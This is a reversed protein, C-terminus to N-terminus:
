FYYVGFMELRVRPDGEDEFVVTEDGGGGATAGKVLSGFANLVKENFSIKPPKNSGTNWMFDKDSFVHVAGDISGGDKWNFSNQATNLADVYILGRFLGGSGMQELKANGPGAYVLTSSNDTGHYFRGGPNLTAGDEVIFIVKKDFKGDHPENFNITPDGRKVKLVLHDKYLKGEEAAKDYSEHLKSVSFISGNTAAGYASQILNGDINSIDLQPDRREEIGKMGLKGLITEGSLEPLKTRSLFGSVLSLDAHQGNLHRICSWQNPICHEPGAAQGQPPPNYYSLNDTYYFSNTTPSAISKLHLNTEIGHQTRFDGGIYVNGTTHISGAGGTALNGAFGVDDEFVHCGSNPLNQFTANGGIFTKGYFKNSVHMFEAHEHFYADGHFIGPSNQFKAFGEFTASGFVEMANDGNRLGGKMYIANKGGYAGGGEFKINGMKYLAHAKKLNKGGASRGAAVEFRAFRNERQFEILRSSFFQYEALKEKAKGDSGGFIYPKHNKDNLADTLTKLAADANNPNRFYTETAIMGSKVTSQMTQVASYSRSAASQSGTSRVMAATVIGIFVMAAMVGIIVAGSEGTGGFVRNERKM